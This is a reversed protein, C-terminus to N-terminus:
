AVPMQVVPRIYPVEGSGIDKLLDKLNQLLEAKTRAQTEYEPYQNLFGLFYKGDRWYTFSVKKMISASANLGAYPLTPATADESAALVTLGRAALEDQRLHLRDAVQEAVVREAQHGLLALQARRELPQALRRGEHGGVALREQLHGRVHRGLDRHIV